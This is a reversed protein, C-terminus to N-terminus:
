FETFHGFECVCFFFLVSYWRDLHYLLLVSSDTINQNPTIRMKGGEQARQSPLGSFFKAMCNVSFVARRQARTFVGSTGSWFVLQQKKKKGISSAELFFEIEM